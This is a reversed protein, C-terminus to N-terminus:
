PYTNALPESRLRDLAEHGQWTMNGVEYRPHAEDDAGSIRRVELYGAQGCLGIHYHVVEWSYNSCEPADVTGGSTRSEVYELIKRILRLERKM